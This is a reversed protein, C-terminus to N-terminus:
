QCDESILFYGQDASPSAVTTSTSEGVAVINSAVLTFADTLESVQWVNYGRDVRSDWTLDALGTASDFSFDTIEPNFGFFRLNEFSVTYPISNTGDDVQLHFWQVSSPDFGPITGPQSAVPTGASLADTLVYSGNTLGFWSWREQTGDGDQLV